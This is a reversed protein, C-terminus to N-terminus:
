VESPDARPGAAAAVSDLLPMARDLGTLEFTQRLHQRTSVLRLDGGLSRARKLAGVIVGLGASDLFDVDELDVVVHADGQTLVEVVEARLRPATAMDLDGHVSLVVWGDLVDRTITLDM